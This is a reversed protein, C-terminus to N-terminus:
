GICWVGELKEVERMMQAALTYCGYLATLSWPWRLKELILDSVSVSLEWYFIVGEGQAEVGGEAQM